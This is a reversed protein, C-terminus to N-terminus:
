ACAVVKRTRRSQYPLPSCSWTNIHWPGYPSSNYVVAGRSWLEKGQDLCTASFLAGVKSNSPVGPCFLEKKPSLHRGESPLQSPCANNLIDPWFVPFLRGHQGRGRGRGSGCMWPTGHLPIGSDADNRVYNRRDSAKAWTDRAGGQRHGWTQDTGKGHHHMRDGGPQCAERRQHTIKSTMRGSPNSALVVKGFEQIWHGSNTPLGYESPPRSVSFPPRVRASVGQLNM